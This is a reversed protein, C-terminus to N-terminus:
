GQTETLAIDLNPLGTTSSIYSFLFSLCSANYIRASGCSYWDLQPFPQGSSVAAVALIRYAVLGYTGTCSNTMTCSQVSRVGLDGAALGIPFFGFAATAAGSPITAGARGSTGSSNTYSVTCFPPNSLNTSIEMGLLVGHGTTAPTDDTASTPCRTPWTPSTIPQLTTTSAALTDSWLRDVLFLLGSGLNASAVHPSNALLRYLYSNGSAPDTRSLAGTTSGDSTAGNVGAGLAGAAPSGPMTWASAMIGSTIGGTTPAKLFYSPRPLATAAALDATTFPM